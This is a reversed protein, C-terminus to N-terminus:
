SASKKSTRREKATALYGIFIAVAGLALQVWIPTMGALVWSLVLAGLLTWFAIRIAISGNM